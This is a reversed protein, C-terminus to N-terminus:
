GRKYISLAKRKSLDTRYPELAENDFVKINKLIDDKHSLYYSVLRDYIFKEKISYDDDISVGDGNIMFISQHFGPFSVLLKHYFDNDLLSNEKKFNELKSIFPNIIEICSDKNGQSSIVLNLKSGIFIEKPDVYLKFNNIKHNILAKTADDYFNKIVNYRIKRKYIIEREIRSLSVEGHIYGINELLIATKEKQIVDKLMSICGDLKNIKIYTEM